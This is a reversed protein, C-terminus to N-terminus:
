WCPNRLDEPPRGSTHLFQGDPMAQGAHLDGTNGPVVQQGDKILVHVCLHPLGVSGQPFQRTLDDGGVGVHTDFTDQVRQLLARVHDNGAAHGIWGQEHCRQNMFEAPGQLVPVPQALSGHDAVQQLAAALDDATIEGLRAFLIHGAQSM